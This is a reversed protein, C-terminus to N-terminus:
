RSRLTSKIFISWHKRFPLYPHFWVTRSEFKKFVKSVFLLMIRSLFGSPIRSFSFLLWITSDRICNKLVNKVGFFIHVIPSCKCLIRSLIIHWVMNDRICNKSHTKSCWFCILKQHFNTILDKSPCYFIPWVM